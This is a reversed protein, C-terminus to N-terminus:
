VSIGLIVYYMQLTSEEQCNVVLIDEHVSRSKTKYECQPM